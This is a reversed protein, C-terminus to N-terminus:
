NSIEYAFDIASVHANLMIDRSEAASECAGSFSNYSLFISRILSIIIDNALFFNICNIEDTLIELIHIIVNYKNVPKQVNNRFINFIDVENKFVDIRFKSMTYKLNGVFINMKLWIISMSM